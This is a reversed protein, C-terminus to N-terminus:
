KLGLPDTPKEDENLYQVSLVSPPLGAVVGGVGDASVLKLMTLPSEPEAFFVGAGHTGHARAPQSTPLTEVAFATSSFLLAMTKRAPGVVSAAGAAAPAVLMLTALTLPKVEPMAIVISVPESASDAVIALTPVAPAAPVPIVKVAGRAFACALPTGTYPGVAVSGAPSMVFTNPSPEGSHFSPLSECIAGNAVAARAFASVSKTPMVIWQAAPPPM